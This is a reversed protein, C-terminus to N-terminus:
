VVVLFGGIPLATAIGVAEVCEAVQTRSERNRSRNQFRRRDWGKFEPSSEQFAQDAVREILTGDERYHELPTERRLAQAKAAGQILPHKLADRV